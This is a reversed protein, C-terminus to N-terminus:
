SVLVSIHVQSANIDRSFVDKFSATSIMLDGKPAHYLVASEMPSFADGTVSNLRKSSIIPEFASDLQNQDTAASDRAIVTSNNQGYLCYHQILLVIDFFCSVFGIGIKGANSTIITIDLFECITFRTQYRYIMKYRARQLISYYNSSLM